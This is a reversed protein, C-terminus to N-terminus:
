TYGAPRASRRAQAAPRERHDASRSILSNGLCCQFSSSFSSAECRCFPHCAVGSHSSYPLRPEWIPVMQFCARKGEGTGM